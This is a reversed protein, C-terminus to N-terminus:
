PEIIPIELIVIHILVANRLLCSKTTHRIEATHNSVANKNKCAARSGEHLKFTYRYKHVSTLTVTHTNNQLTLTNYTPRHYLSVRHQCM